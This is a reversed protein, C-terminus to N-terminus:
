ADAPLPEPACRNTSINAVIARTFSCCTGYLPAAGEAVAVKLPSVINMNSFMTVANGSARAPLSRASATVVAVRDTAAGSITV